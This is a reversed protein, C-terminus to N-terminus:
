GVAVANKRKWANKKAVVNHKIYNALLISPVAIGVLVDKITDIKSNRTNTPKEGYSLVTM